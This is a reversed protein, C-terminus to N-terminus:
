RSGSIYHELQEITFQQGEIIASVVDGISVIGVLRGEDLVPIHRVRHKTMLAMCADETQNPGVCIVETSMIERVPTDKSVRGRLVVKRAYDRESILGLLIGRPDLVVLAGVDHRAMEELAEFVSADPGVGHVTTGKRDLLQRVLHM